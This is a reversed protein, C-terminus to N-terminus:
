IKKDHISVKQELHILLGSLDCIAILQGDCRQCEESLCVNSIAGWSNYFGFGSFEWMGREGHEFDLRGWEACNTALPVRAVGSDQLLWFRSALVVLMVLEHQFDVKALSELIQFGADILGAHIGSAKGRFCFM